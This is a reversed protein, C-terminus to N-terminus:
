QVSTNATTTEILSTLRRRAGNTGFHAVMDPNLEWHPVNKETHLWVGLGVWGEIGPYFASNAEIGSYM